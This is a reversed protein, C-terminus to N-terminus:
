ALVTRKSFQSLKNKAFCQKKKQPRSSFPHPFLEPFRALGRPCPSCTVFCMKSENLTLWDFGSLNDKRHQSWFAAPSTGNSFITSFKSFGAVQLVTDADMYHSSLIPNESEKKYSTIAVEQFFVFVFLVLDFAAGVTLPPHGLIFILFLSILNLGYHIRKTM